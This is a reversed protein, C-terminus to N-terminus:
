RAPACVAVGTRLDLRYRQGDFCAFPTATGDFYVIANSTSSPGSLFRGPGQHWRHRAAEDVRSSARSPAVPGLDAKRSESQWCSLNNSRGLLNSTGVLNFFERDNFPLPKVERRSM